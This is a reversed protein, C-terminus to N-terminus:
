GEDEGGALEELGEATIAYNVRKGRTKLIFGLEVLDGITKDRQSGRGVVLDRMAKQGQAGDPGANKLARLTPIYAEELNDETEPSVISMALGGNKHTGIMRAVAKGIPAPLQGHRDKHNTLVLYGDTKQTWPVGTVLLAAGDIRALKHQSGIPGMPRGEKRKPVHDIILVTCGADLFPFVIKALWPAVDAGDSPCGASEASDIVVLTPGDGEAVWTMAETMALASGDLGPRLYKFQGDRWYEALDVGMVSSRRKLTGATDEHDWYIVRSGRMLTEHVCYLAVWSKGGGPTGFCFNLKGDYLLTAGDKRTLLATPALDLDSGDMPSEFALLPEEGAVQGGEDAAAATADYNDHRRESRTLERAKLAQERDRLEADLEDRRRVKRSAAITAQRQKELGEWFPRDKEEKEKKKRAEELKQKDRAEQEVKERADAEVKDEARRKATDILGQPCPCPSRPWKRPDGCHPCPSCNHVEWGERDDDPVPESPRFSSRCTNCSLTPRFCRIRGRSDLALERHAKDYTDGCDDCWLPPKSVAEAITTM